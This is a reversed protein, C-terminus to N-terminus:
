TIVQSRVSCRGVRHHASFLRQAQVALRARPRKRHQQPNEAAPGVRPNEQVRLAPVARLHAVGLQHIPRDHARDLRDHHTSRRFPHHHFLGVQVRQQGRECTRGTVRPRGNRQTHHIGAILATARGIARHMADRDLGRRHRNRDIRSAVQLAQNIQM